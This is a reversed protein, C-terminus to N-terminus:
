NIRYYLSKQYTDNHKRKQFCNFLFVVVKSLVISFCFNTIFTVIKPMYWHRLPVSICIKFDVYMNSNIYFCYASFKAKKFLLIRSNNTRSIQLKRLLYALRKGNNRLTQLCVNWMDWTRMDWFMFPTKIHFRRWIIETHVPLYQFIKM